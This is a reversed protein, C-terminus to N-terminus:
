LILSCVFCRIIPSSLIDFAWNLNVTLGSCWFVSSIGAYDFKFFFPCPLHLFCLLRKFVSLVRPYIVSDSLVHVYFVPELKLLQMGCRHIM